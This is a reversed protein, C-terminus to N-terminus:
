LRVEKISRRFETVNTKSNKSVNSPTRLKKKIVGFDVENMRAELEVIELDIDSTNDM